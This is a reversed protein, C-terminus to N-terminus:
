DVVCTLAWKKAGSCMMHNQLAEYMCNSTTDTKTALSHVGVERKVVYFVSLLLM